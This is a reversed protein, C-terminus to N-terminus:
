VPQLLQEELIFSRTIKAKTSQMETPLSLMRGIRRMKTKFNIAHIYFDAAVPEFM